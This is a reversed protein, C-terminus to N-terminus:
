GRRRRNWIIRRMSTLDRPTRRAWPMFSPWGDVTAKPFFNPLAILLTLLCAFLTAIVKSRSFHLM